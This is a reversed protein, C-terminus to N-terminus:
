NRVEGVTTYLFRPDPLVINLLKRGEAGLLVSCPNNLTIARAMTM